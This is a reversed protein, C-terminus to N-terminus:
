NEMEKLASELQERTLGIREEADDNQEPNFMDDLGCVLAEAISVRLSEPTVDLSLKRVCAEAEGLSIRESLSVIDAQELRDEVISTLYCVAEYPPCDVFEDDKELEKAFADLEEGYVASSRLQMYVANRAADVTLTRFDSEELAEAMIQDTILAKSLVKPEYQPLM